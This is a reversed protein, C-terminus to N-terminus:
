VPPLRSDMFATSNRPGSGARWSQPTDALLILTAASKCVGPDRGADPHRLSLEASRSLLDIAPSQDLLQRFEEPAPSVVPDITSTSVKILTTTAGIDARM